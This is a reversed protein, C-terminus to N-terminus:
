HDSSAGGADRMNSPAGDTVYVIWPAPKMAAITAGAGIIDDDPHAAVIAVRGGELLRRELDV